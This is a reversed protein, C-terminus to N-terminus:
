SAPLWLRYLKDTFAARWRVDRSLAQDLPGGRGVIVANVRRAALRERWGPRLYAITTFDNWVELPYPDARGDLFVRQLPLGVALGCWAFDACFVRHEGPARALAGLASRALGDDTRASSRVLVLAVLCAFALAIAPLAANAIRDARSPPAPSGPAFFPLARSLSAAVVPLAILGFLAINRAAGLLLWAGAGLVFLDRFRREGRVGALLAVFLLPLAGYAFSLDDIDTVKWESIQAKIPSGFLGIAYAVLHWGFPNLCLAVLSGAAVFATRRVRPSWGREDLATGLAVFTGLVPALLASAHLNAWLAAVALAGYCWPGDLELLALYAALPLWALVQVRVGFSSFLAIGALATCVALARPSAGRREGQLAALALAAVAALAVASAFVTWGIGDRALSAFLSFAWEQPVWPAGAATFTETGLAHPIARSARIQEGLWRQWSLDGDLQPYAIATAL